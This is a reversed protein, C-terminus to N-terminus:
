KQGSSILKEVCTLKLSVSLGSVLRGGATLHASQRSALKRALSVFEKKGM